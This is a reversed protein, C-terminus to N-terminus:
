NVGTKHIIQNLYYKALRLLFYVLITFWTDWMGLHLVFFEAPKACKMTSMFWPVADDAFRYFAREWQKQEMQKEVEKLAATWGDLNGSTSANHIFGWLRGESSDSLTGCSHTSTGPTSTVILSQDAEKTEPVTM